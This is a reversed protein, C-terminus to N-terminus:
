GRGEAPSKTQASDPQPAEIVTNPNFVGSMLSPHAGPPQSPKQAEEDDQMGPTNMKDSDHANEETQAQSQGSQKENAAFV